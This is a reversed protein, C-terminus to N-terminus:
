LHLGGYRFERKLRERTQSAPKITDRNEGEAVFPGEDFLKRVAINLRGMAARANDSAMEAGDDAPLCNAAFHYGEFFAETIQNEIYLRKEPSPTPILTKEFVQLVEDAELVSPDGCRNELIDRFTDSVMVGYAFVVYSSDCAFEYGTKWGTCGWPSGDIIDLGSPERRKAVSDCWDANVEHPVGDVEVIYGM